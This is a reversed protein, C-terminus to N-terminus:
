GLSRRSRCQECEWLLTCDCANQRPSQTNGVMAHGSEGAKGLAESRFAGSPKSSLPLPLWKAFSSMPSCNEVYWTKNTPDWKAGLNKAEDKEAFPVKLDTRM